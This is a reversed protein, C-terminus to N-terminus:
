TERLREGNKKQQYQASCDAWPKKRRSTCKSEGKEKLAASLRKSSEELLQFRNTIDKLNQTTEKLKEELKAQKNRSSQLISHESKRKQSPVIENGKM